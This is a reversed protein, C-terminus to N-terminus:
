NRLWRASRSCSWRQEGEAQHALRNQELKGKFAAIIGGLETAVAAGFDVLQQVGTDNLIQGGQM